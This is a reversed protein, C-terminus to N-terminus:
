SKGLSREMYQHKIGVEEFMEGVLEFGHKEYFSVVGDRAHCYINKFKKMEDLQLINKILFSGIGKTQEAKTVCMQMLQIKELDPFLLANAIVLGENLVLCHISGKDKHEWYFDPLGLPRLLVENRIRRAQDYYPSHIDTKLFELKSM